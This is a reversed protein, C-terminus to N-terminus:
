AAKRMDLVMKLAEKVATGQQGNRVTLGVTGASTVSASGPLLQTLSGNNTSTGTIDITDVNARADAPLGPLAVEQQPPGGQRYTADIVYDSGTRQRLTYTFDVTTAIGNLKTAVSATWRAGVGVPEAPFPVALQALQSSMNEVTGALTPDLGPPATVATHITEGRANVTFTGTLGDLQQVGQQAAARGRGGPGDVRFDTMTYRGDIDGNPAVAVVTMALDTAVGVTPMSGASRGDVSLKIDTRVTMTTHTQTGATVAFRLVDRPEAGPEVLRITTGGVPESPAPSATASAPGAAASPGSGSGGGCGTVTALLVAVSVASATVRVRM